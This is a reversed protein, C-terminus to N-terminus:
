LISVVTDFIKDSIEDISGSADVIEIKDTSRMDEIVKMFTDRVVGLTEENEYIETSDRGATIRKMSEAPTLDLFICVDPHRIEPCQTNLAKVWAYDILSGQYALTSYYYRDCIVCIGERLMKEIGREDDVNHAIRDLTFMAAIECDSKKIEGSLVRRLERGSPLETPEATMVVSKGLNRLREALIKAQTSKGAGDIGEFVIFIGRDM